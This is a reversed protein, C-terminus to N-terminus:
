KKPVKAPNGIQVLLVAKRVALQQFLEKRLV